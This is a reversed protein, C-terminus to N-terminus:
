TFCNYLISTSKDTIEDVIHNINKKRNIYPMLIKNTFVKENFLVSFFVIGNKEVNGTVSIAVDLNLIKKIGFALEESVKNSVVGHKEITEKSVSLVDTKISNSYCIISGKFYKSAGENKVFNYSLAGGTISEAFGIKLNRKLLYEILKSM